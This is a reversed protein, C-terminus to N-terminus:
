VFVTTDDTAYQCESWDQTSWNQVNNDEEKFFLANM